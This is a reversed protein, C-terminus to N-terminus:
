RTAPAGYTPLEPVPHVIDGLHVVFAPDLSDVEALVHRCRANALRNAEYPSPSEDEAQNTHTDAVVVFRTLLRGQPRRDASPSM